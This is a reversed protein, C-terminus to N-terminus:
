NYYGLKILKVFFSLCYDENPQNLKMIQLKRLKSIKTKMVIYVQLLQPHLSYVTPCKPCALFVKLWFLIIHWLAVALPLGILIPQIAM